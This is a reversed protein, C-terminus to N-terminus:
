IKLWHQSPYEYYALTEDISDVILKAAAGLKMDKLEEVM